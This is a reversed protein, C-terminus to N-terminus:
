GGPGAGISARGESRCDRGPSQGSGELKVRATHREVGDVNALADVLSAIRDDGPVVDNEYESREIM